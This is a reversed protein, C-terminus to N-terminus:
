VVHGAGRAFLDKFGAFGNGFVLLPKVSALGFPLLALIIPVTGDGAGVAELSVHVIHVGYGGLDNGRVGAM